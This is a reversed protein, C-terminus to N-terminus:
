RVKSVHWHRCALIEVENTIDRCLVPPRTMERNFHLNRTEDARDDRFFLSYVPRYTVEGWIKNVSHQNARLPNDCIGSSIERQYLKQTPNKWAHSPRSSFSVHPFSSVVTITCTSSISCSSKMTTYKTGNLEQLSDKYKKSYSGIRGNPLVGARGIILFQTDAPLSVSRAYLGLRRLICRGSLPAEYLFSFHIYAWVWTM